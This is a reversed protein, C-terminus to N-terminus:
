DLICIIKLDLFITLVKTATLFTIQTRISGLSWVSDSSFNGALEVISIFSRIAAPIRM